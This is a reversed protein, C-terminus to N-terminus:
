WNVLFLRSGNHQGGGDVCGGVGGGFDEFRLLVGSSNESGAAHLDKSGL